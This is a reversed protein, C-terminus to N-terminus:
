FYRPSYSKEIKTDFEFGLMIEFSAKSPKQLKTLTYDYALGLVMGNKMQYSAWIDVSDYSSTGTFAEVSSRFSAGLWFTERFLLSLDVSFETPSGYNDAAGDDSKFGSLLAASKVLVMPKLILDDGNLPIAGGASLYYHRATRAYRETTLNLDRLDHELLNPVAAGLYFFKSYYYLGFGFNPLWYSPFEDSFSEDTSDFVEIKKLNARWNTIGGQMGVAITGAKADKGLRIKYAYSINTSVMRSTGITQNIISGGIGLKDIKKFPTHLTLSQVNPSGKVGLWQSRHILAISLHEKSGAYAPNFNLSNFMYKTFMADTQAQSVQTYFLGLLIFCLTHIINRTYPKARM